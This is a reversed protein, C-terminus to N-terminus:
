GRIAAISSNSNRGLRSGLRAVRCRQPSSLDAGTDRYIALAGAHAHGSSQVAKESDGLWKSLLDALTVHIFSAGLYGAIARAIFTKGCGPPGYMLLSGGPKQGFAAALAPNHLPALFTSEIHQKVEALGAVDDLTV